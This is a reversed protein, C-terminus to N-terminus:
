VFGLLIDNLSIRIYMYIRLFRGDCATLDTRSSLWNILGDHDYFEWFEILM